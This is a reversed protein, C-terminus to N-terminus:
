LIGRKILEIALLCLADAPTDAVGFCYATFDEGVPYGVNWVPYSYQLTLLYKYTSGNSSQVKPLKELLCDSDYAPTNSTISEGSIKTPSPYSFGAEKVASEPENYWWYTDDWEPKLEYLRKSNQLSAVRM